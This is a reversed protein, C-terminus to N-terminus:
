RKSIQRWIFDFVTLHLTTRSFRWTKPWLQM